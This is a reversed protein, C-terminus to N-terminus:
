CRVKELRVDGQALQEVVQWGLRRYVACARSDAATELWIRAHRQFLQQEAAAILCRGLGQGEYEPLVFAAFLCAEEDDVMSFGVPVGSVEAVWACPGAEIAEAIAAPTIGMQELEAMSLHNEVVGTRIAFIAAIDDLRALRILAEM